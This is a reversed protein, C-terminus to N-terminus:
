LAVMRGIALIPGTPRGTPSGYEPELTVEFLQESEVAPLRNRPVDLPQGVAVLGLSTPRDAGKPKTWFQLSKGAPVEPMTGVPLLRVTDASVLQVVWSAQNDPTNLVALYQPAAEDVAMLRVGLVVALLLSLVSAAQWLGLRQWWPAGAQQARGGLRARIADWLARPVPLPAVRAVLPLLRDQWAYVAGALARDRPLRAEMAAQEDRSLTGIVYEAADIDPSHPDDAQMETSM